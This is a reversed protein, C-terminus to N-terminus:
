PGGDIRGLLTLDNARGFTLTREADGGDHATDCHIEQGRRICPDDRGDADLDALLLQDGARGFSLSTATAGSPDACRLHPARYVCPGDTGDGDLDGLLAQDTSTGYRWAWEAAGGDHRPDCLFQVGRRVCAEDRGDGDVDGLLMVDGPLGFAIALGPSGHHASDCLLRRNRVVCADDRGDGDLDGLLPLDGDRGGYRFSAEAAGGNRGTDCAWRGQRVVCAHDGRPPLLAFRRGFIDDEADYPQLASWVVMFRGNDALAVSPDLRSGPQSPDTVLFENGAPLGNARFARAKIDRSEYRFDLYEWTVVFNGAADAAVAPNTENSTTSANVRFESGLRGGTADLRQGYIGSGAGDQGVSEWVVIFRGLGDAAVAQEYQHNTRYSNVPLEPGLVGTSSDLLRGVVDAGGEAAKVFTLLLTSDSQALENVLRRESVLRDPEAPTADAEFQRVFIGDAPFGGPAYVQAWSVSFSGEPAAAIRPGGVLEGAVAPRLPLPESLFTGAADLLRGAIGFLPPKREQWVVVFQNAARALDFQWSAGSGGDVRLEPGAAAGELDYARAAVSLDTLVGPPQPRDNEWAVLM